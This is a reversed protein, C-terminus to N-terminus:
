QDGSLLGCGCCSFLTRSPTSLPVMGDPIDSVPAEDLQAGAVSFASMRVPVFDFLINTSGFPSVTGAASLANNFCSSRPTALSTSITGPM